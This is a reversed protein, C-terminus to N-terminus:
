SYNRMVSLSRSFSSSPSTSSTSWFDSSSPDTEEDTSSKGEDFLTICVTIELSDFASSDSCSSLKATAGASKEGMLLLDQIDTGAPRTALVTPVSFVDVFPIFLAFGLRL